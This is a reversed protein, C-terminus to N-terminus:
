AAHKLEQPYYRYPSGKVGDGEEWIFASAEELLKLVTKKTMRLGQM